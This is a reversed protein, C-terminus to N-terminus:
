WIVLNYFQRNKRSPTVPKRGKGGEKGVKDTTEPSM